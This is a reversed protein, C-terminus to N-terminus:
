SHLGALAGLAWGGVTAVGSGNTTVSGGTITGGGSTVVYTVPVGAMAAGRQDKVIVSPLETVAAGAIATLSTSSNPAISTAVPPAVSTDGGGCASLGLALSAINLRITKSSFGTVPTAPLRRRLSPTM